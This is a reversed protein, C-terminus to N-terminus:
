KFDMSVRSALTIEGNRDRKWGWVSVGNKESLPDNIGNEIPRCGNVYLGLFWLGRRIIARKAEFDMVNYDSRRRFSCAKELFTSLSREDINIIKFQNSNGWIPPMRIPETKDPPSCMGRRDFNTGHTDIEMDDFNETDKGSSFEKYGEEMYYNWITFADLGTGSSKDTFFYLMSLFEIPNQISYKDDKFFISLGRWLELVNFILAGDFLYVTKRIRKTKEDVLNSMAILLMFLQRADSTLFFITEQLGLDRSSLLRRVARCAADGRQWSEITAVLNKTSGIGCQSIYDVYSYNKRNESNNNNNNDSARSEKIFARKIVDFPSMYEVVESDKEYGKIMEYCNVCEVELKKGLALRMKILEKSLWSIFRIKAGKSTMVKKLMHSHSIVFTNTSIGNDGFILASEEKHTLPSVQIGDHYYIAQRINEPITQAADSILVYTDVNSSFYSQIKHTYMKVIDGWTCAGQEFMTEITREMVDIVTSSKTTALLKEMNKGSDVFQSHLPVFHASLSCIVDKWASGFDPEM